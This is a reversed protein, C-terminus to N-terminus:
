QIDLVHHDCAHGLYEICMALELSLSTFFTSIFYSYSNAHMYTDLPAPRKKRISLTYTNVFNTPFMQKYIYIYTSHAGARSIQSLLLDIVRDRHRDYRYHSRWSMHM